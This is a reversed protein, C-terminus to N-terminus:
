RIGIASLLCEAEASPVQVQRCLVVSAEYSDATTLADRYSAASSSTPAVEACSLVCGIIWSVGSSM